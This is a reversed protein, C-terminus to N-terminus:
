RSHRWGFLILLIAGITIASDAVNFSPWPGLVVFDVVAGRLFGPARFVRDCLNGLAGALLLSLAIVTVTDTTRQVTRVLVVTVVIAAVALVPTFTQFISFAGGTNRSLRLQITEGAILAPGESLTAVVIAKTIQDLAVVGLVIAIPLWPWRRTATEGTSPTEAAASEM